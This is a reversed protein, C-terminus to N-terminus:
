VTKTGADHLSKWFTHTEEIVKMTYDRGMAKEGLGFKNMPKGDVTKYLRFWERMVSVYGPLLREVDTVDNLQQALPDDAAICIVKWDTEDDDIMALCGLVKVRTVSGTKLMRYGIEVADIPDNDGPFGTDPTTHKPDEWTQPFAGYNFCMDGYNYDRLKGNKVDQKIPNFLEGTAIEFKARSFKPIETIMHVYGDASYLPIDHWPSIQKLEGNDNYHFLVRFDLSRPTGTVFTSLMKPDFAGGIKSMIKKFRSTYATGKKSLVGSKSHALTYWALFDEFSINGTRNNDMAKFASKGEEESLPEGLVVHLEMLQEFTILGDGTDDAISFVQKLMAVDEAPVDEHPSTLNVGRSLAKRKLRDIEALLQPVENNDEYFSNTTYKRQVGGPPIQPLGEMDMGEAPPEGFFSSRHTHGPISSLPVAGPPEPIGKPAPAGPLVQARMTVTSDGYQRAVAIDIPTGATGAGQARALAEQVLAVQDNM